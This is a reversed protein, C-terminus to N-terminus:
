RAEVKKRRKFHATLEQIPDKDTSIVCTDVNRRQCEKLWYYHNKEWFERYQDQLTKSRGIFFRSFGSEPDVASILGKVNIVSDIPDTVKIAIVDHKKALLSLDSWGSQTKFDSLIVCIARRNLTKNLTSLAISLDSGSGTAKLRMMDNIIRSVQRHGKQAPIWKEIKDSYFIAGVRDNNFIASYALLSSIIGIAERRPIKGCGIDISASIDIVFFFNLEREERFKKSFLSDMRSSVNWDINRVDDGDTYERVEDFELGPGRFVSRYNGAFIGEALKRAVISLNKVRSYFGHSEEM